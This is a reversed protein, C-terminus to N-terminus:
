RSFAAAKDSLVHRAAMARLLHMSAGTRSSKGEPAPRPDTITAGRLFIWERGRPGPPSFLVRLPPPDRAPQDQMANDRLQPIRGQAEPEGSLHMTRHEEILAIADDPGRQQPAILARGALAQRDRLLDARLTQDLDCAVGGDGSKLRGLDQPQALLPRIRVGAHVLYKKRLVVNTQLEGTLARGVGGVGGARQKEVKAGRAHDSSIRM